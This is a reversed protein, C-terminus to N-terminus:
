SKGFWLEVAEVSARKQKQMRQRTQTERGEGGAQGM